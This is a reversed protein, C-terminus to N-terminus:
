TSQLVFRNAKDEPLFIAVLGERSGPNVPFIPDWSDAIQDLKTKDLRDVLDLVRQRTSVNVHWHGRLKVVM